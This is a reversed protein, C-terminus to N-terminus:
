ENSNQAPFSDRILREVEPLTRLKPDIDIFCVGIKEADQLIADALYQCGTDLDDKKIYMLSLYYLVCGKLSPDEFYNQCLEIGLDPCDNFYCFPIIFYFFHVIEYDMVTIATYCLEKMEEIDRVPDLLGILEEMAVFDDPVRRLHERVYARAEDLRGQVKFVNVIDPLVYTAYITDENKAQLFYRMAKDYEKLQFYCRGIQINFQLMEYHENALNFYEIAREYERMGFYSEAINVYALMEDPDVSLQLQFADIASAYDGTGIYALGLGSWLSGFLPLEETLEKFFAVLLQDKPDQMEAFDVFINKIDDAAYQDLQIARIAHDVAKKRNDRLLYEHMLLLHTEPIDENLALSKKLLEIANVDRNCLHALIVKEIYLEPIPAFHGEVYDLEREADVFKQQLSFYKSRLLRIYPDKPYTQMAYTIAKECYNLNGTELFYGIVDQIDTNEFYFAQGHDVASKFRQALEEMELSDMDDFQDM